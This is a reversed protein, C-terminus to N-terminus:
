AGGEAAQLREAILQAVQNPECTETDIRILPEPMAQFDFAGERDLQEYVVPDTLKGYTRRSESALRNLIAPKSCVLEIYHVRGGRSTVSHHLRTILEHPVTREPNFTFIFSRGSAAAESFATLWIAERLNRFGPSGFEFLCLATDVALHNHFLPLGIVNSLAQGVTHKGVAVPGYIFVVFM